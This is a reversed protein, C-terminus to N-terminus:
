LGGGHSSLPVLEDHLLPGDEPGGLRPAQAPAAEHGRDEVAALRRDRDRDALAVSRAASVVEPPM